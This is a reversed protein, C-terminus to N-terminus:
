PKKGWEKIALLRHPPRTTKAVEAFGSGDLKVRNLGHRTVFVVQGASRMVLFVPGANRDVLCPEPTIRQEPKGVRKLWTGRLSSDPVNRPYMLTEDDLWVLMDVGAPMEEFKMTNLDLLKLGASSVCFLRKGTTSPAMIAKCPLPLAKEPLLKGATRDFIAISKGDVLLACRNGDIWQADRIQSRGIPYKIVEDTQVDYHYVENGQQGLLVRADPSRRKQIGDTPIRTPKVEGTELNVRLQQNLNRVAIVKDTAMILNEAFYQEVFIGMTTIQRENTLKLTKLDVDAMWVDKDKPYLAAKFGDRFGVTYRTSLAAEQTGDMAYRVIGRPFTALLKKSAKDYFLDKPRDESIWDKFLVEGTEVDYLDDDALFLRDIREEVVAVKQAVEEKAITEKLQAQERKEPTGKLWWWAFLATSIGIVGLVLALKPFAKIYRWNFM